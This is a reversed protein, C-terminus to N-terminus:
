IKEALFSKLGSAYMGLVLFWSKGVPKEVIEVIRDFKLSRTMLFFLFLPFTLSFSFNCVKRLTHVPPNTNSIFGSIGFLKPFSSAWSLKWMYVFGSVSGFVHSLLLHVDHMSWIFGIYISFFFFGLNEAYLGGFSFGSM